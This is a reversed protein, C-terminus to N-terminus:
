SCSICEIPTAGVPGFRKTKRGEWNVGIKSDAESELHVVVLEPILARKVRDWQLAHQVDTRCASNHTHPYPKIRVGDRLDASSHWLQFFGIPVYGMDKDYWRAGLKMTNHFNLGHYWYQRGHLYNSEKLKIWNDWGEVMLRDCGYITDQQPRAAKLLQRFRTPLIIDADIHLRWGESSLMNLGRNVLWGKNFDGNNQGEESVLCDLDHKRCIHQTETDKANTIILWRDFLGHNYSATVDLFDAYNVCVTVAEIKMPQAM